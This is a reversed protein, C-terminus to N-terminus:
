AHERAYRQTLETLLLSLQDNLKHIDNETEIIERGNRGFEPWREPEGLMRQLRDALAEVDWEKVVYGSVGDRVVEPIGSHFTSIVPMGMAMAEKIATPVGEEDGNKATVSPALFIHSSALVPRVEERTKIGHFTVHDALGLQDRLAELKSRQNGEGVIDFHFKVGRKAVEALARLGFDIGKKEVLRCVTVIRPTEGAALTRLKTEFFSLDVGLRHIVIKEDPCGLKRLRSRFEETLPLMLETQAFLARYYSPSSERLIRSLDYGLFTTAIPASFAGLNRLTNAIRGNPGFQALVVDFPELALFTAVYAWFRGIPGYSGLRPDLSRLLRLSNDLPAARLVKASDRLVNGFARSSTWWYHTREALGFRAFDAHVPENGSPARAFVHVDHGRALLGTVQDLIFTTSVEPFAGVVFAIRM